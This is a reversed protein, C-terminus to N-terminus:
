FGLGLSRDVGPLWPNLNGNRHHQMLSGGGTYWRLGIRFADDDFDAGGGSFNVHTFGAFGSVGFDESFLFEGMIELATANLGNRGCVQCGHGSVSNAYEVGATLGLDPMFYGALAAGVYNGQGGVPSGGASSWGAKAMGTINGFYWEGLVGYNTAHGIHTYTNYHSDLGFRGDNNGWFVDGGLNWIEMSFGTAWNHDYSADVEFNLNPLDSLPGAISGGLLWNKLTQANEIKDQGYSTTVVGSFGTLTAAAAPVAALAMGLVCATGMITTRISMAIEKTEM